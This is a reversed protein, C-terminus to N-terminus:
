GVAKKLRTKLLVDHRVGVHLAVRALDAALQEAVVRRVSAVHHADMADLLCAVDAAFFDVRLGSEFPVLLLGMTDHWLPFTSLNM